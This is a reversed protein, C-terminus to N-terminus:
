STAEPTIDYLSITTGGTTLILNPRIEDCLKLLTEKVHVPGSHDKTSDDYCTTSVPIFPLENPEYIQIDENVREESLGIEEDVNYYNAIEEITKAWPYDITSKPVLSKNTM